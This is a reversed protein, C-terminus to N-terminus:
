ENSQQYWFSAGTVVSSSIPSLVLSYGAPLIFLPFPAVMSDSDFGGTPIIGNIISPIFPNAVGAAVDTQQFYIQGWSIGTDPRIASAANQLVGITGKIFWAALGGGGSAAATIAYVKLLIGTSANNYLAVTQYHLGVPPSIEIFEFAIVGLQDDFFDPAQRVLVGPPNRGTPDSPM